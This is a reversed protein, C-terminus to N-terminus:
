HTFSFNLGTTLLIDNKRKGEPPNTVYIDSFSNQWGLWKSIKTVTGFNFAARYEGSNNFDPYFYLKQTLVTAAGLKKLFEEGLTAAAFNRSFTTYNERTYNIGGLFDLTTRDSKIAHFGLGGSLVSRIDLAQLADSQFDAAGFGFLKKTLDRDYRAGGQVANATTSPVAGPADNTSFVSNAYLGLHDRLTKRDATFALALNKTESNGRTLAFSVNAGGAWGELLGPHLTKQYAAEEAPNRIFAVADKQVPVAGKASSEVELAGDTTKVPGVVTEGGKVGVNLQQSSTIEQISGYQITVDGAYETKLVLTAGDSKVVTGTIRDGNKLVIQDAFLTAPLLSLGFVIAALCRLM